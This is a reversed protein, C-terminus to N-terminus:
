FMEKKGHNTSNLYLKADPGITDNIIENTIGGIVFNEFYGQAEANITDDQAYYNIRGNGFNYKIDKPLMFTFKFTGDKVNVDGSFLVNPRDSYTLAGDGENNLTTIWQAKDYITVHLNGNFNSIKSKNDDAIFGHITATSLARLTDNGLTTSQNITDTIVQYTTPYNLKLAPDGLYVYCLKNIESGINNKALVLVDGIRLNQGNVKRFLNECFLKNLTLNQSAYVPRASSLIGIGGGLPNLLVNEGASVTEGDFQLFDCTAGVFLPLHKNTLAKVDNITLIGENAWATPSAHGTYDLLLLGSNLLNLFKTKALPYSQGSATIEQLFADLYIKNVQYAPFKRAVSVAVSDAQRMHLAADGDDALFCLQNKWPGKDQNNMYNITKNVVNSAQQANTVTFRGVGVDLLNSTVQTGENDDLLGFYDDTVYSSTLVLSNEAQYTLVFNNGSNLSVGRNDYSGRGFLLLYQPLDSKNNSAIARDYLMKVMWRYATADPTGSSFENYVQDTTVVDVTMNDKDRHAQALAQAQALFNPHTIIVLEAEPLAHLNQNPIEGDIEPKPFASAASPDIAIYNSLTNAPTTFVIKGNVNSTAINTINSPDTIDWIKVNSNASSLLYQCYDNSGLYDVNQFQMASGSMKLQRRVNVELYNLYGISLSTSKAYSVNFNLNDGTPIFSFIGNAAMAQVYNDDTKKAVSLIKSQGGNLSLTFNSIESSAAAVDMQVKVSIPNPFNFPFDYSLVENFIEGYFEKGSQCLNIQDFEHLQYDTFEEVSHVTAGQPIPITKDQIKKGSGADSTVFYYGYKSYPNPKHTFMSKSSDYSWRNVGQAYFLIYDGANFIGDSGKEMWIAVEPLDDIKPNMFNQDLVGGGYGFIRVNAPNIGMSILDEYTLKYIGSNTIHIKVFKGQALVSSPAYTHLPSSSVKQPAPISIIKLDFSALKLLQDNKNIFPLVSIQLYSNGRQDLEVTEAKIKADFHLQQNVALQKEDTTLPIYIPNNIEISYSYAKNMEIRKVVYPLYNDSPYQAQDFSFVNISSSDATWKQVSNWNLKIPFDQIEQAYLQSWIFSLFSLFFIRYRM